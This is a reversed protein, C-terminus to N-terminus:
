SLVMLPKRLVVRSEGNSQWLAPVIPRGSDMQRCAPTRGCRRWFWGSSFRLGGIPAPRRSLGAEVTPLSPFFLELLDTVTSGDHPFSQPSLPTTTFHPAAM